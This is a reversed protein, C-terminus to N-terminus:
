LKLRHLSEIQESRKSEVEAEDAFSRWRSVADLVENLMQNVAAKKIDGATGLAILDERTFDDRKGNVSMQHQSTWPGDPNWSFAVDFAPSLRWEGKRNMLFAINKVHDDQNRAVVNFVARRVQQEMDERGLNLQRIVQLAQEYSYSAPQNYDYHAMAGLSQMHRKGGKRTRDFRKTMFHSRGGEHHLRCETM